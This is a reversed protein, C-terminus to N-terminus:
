ESTLSGVGELVARCWYTLDNAADPLDAHGVEDAVSALQGGLTQIAVIADERITSDAAAAIARALRNIETVTQRAGPRADSSASAAALLNATDVLGTLRQALT